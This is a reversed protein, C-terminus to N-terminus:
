EPLPAEIMDKRLDIVTNQIVDTIQKVEKHPNFIANKGKVEDAINSLIIASTQSEPYYILLSPAGKVYGTHFYALPKGVNTMLGLGYGMKGLIQHNRNSSKEMLKNLSEPKLIVGGYLATNWRHLDNVTSLIGGAPVSISKNALRKPMNEVEHYSKADGTFASALRSGQFSNATSSNQMGAKSFLEKVNEDYSKGSVKEIIEGLLRYGKNSYHFEKGPESLLGDGYDSIGSTHNLLEKISINKFQNTQFTNLYKSVQDETTLKGSDEQLLILVATFQKSVSAIAFVSSSDLKKKQKFDEFGSDKQYLIEDNKLVAVSGNFQYKSFVSDIQQTLLKKQFQNITSDILANRTSTQDVIKEAESKCSFTTALILFFFLSKFNM